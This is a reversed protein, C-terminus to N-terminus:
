GRGPDPPLSPAHTENPRGANFNTMMERPPLTTLSPYSTKIIAKIECGNTMCTNDHQRNVGEGHWEDGARDPDFSYFDDGTADAYRQGGAEASLMSMVSNVM